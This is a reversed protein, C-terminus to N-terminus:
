FGGNKLFHGRSPAIGEATTLMLQEEKNNLRTLDWGSLNIPEDTPNNLEVGMITYVVKQLITVIAYAM